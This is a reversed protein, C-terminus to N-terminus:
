YTNQSIRLESKLPTFPINQIDGIVVVTQTVCLRKKYQPKYESEFGRGRSGLWLETFGM